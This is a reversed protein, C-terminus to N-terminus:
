APYSPAIIKINVLFKWVQILSEVHFSTVLAQTLVLPRQFCIVAPHILASPTQSGICLPTLRVGVLVAVNGADGTCTLMVIAALAFM